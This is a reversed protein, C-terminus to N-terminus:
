RTCSLDETDSPNRQGHMRFMRATKESIEEARRDDAIYIVGVSINDREGRELMKQMAQRCLLTPSEGNEIRDYIERVDEEQLCHYFGDSGFLYLEGPSVPEELIDTWWEAEKGMYNDLYSRMRGGSLKQVTADTTMQRLGTEPSYRYIRSDGVHSIVVHTEDLLLLSMTSGSKIGLNQLHAILQENWQESHIRLFEQLDAQVPDEPNLVMRNFWTNIHSILFASSIEGGDLGGIGDCVAGICFSHPEEEHIRVLISDENNPRYAGKDTISGTFFKM